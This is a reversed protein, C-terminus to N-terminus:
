TSEGARFHERDVAEYLDRHMREEFMAKLRLNSDWKVPDYAGYRRKVDSMREVIDQLTLKGTHYLAPFPM